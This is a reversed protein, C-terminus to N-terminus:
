ESIPVSIPAPRGLDPGAASIPALSIPALDPAGQILGDRLDPGGMASIPAPPSNPGGM